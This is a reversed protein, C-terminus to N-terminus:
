WGRLRRQPRGADAVVGRGQCAGAEQSRVRERSGADPCERLAAQGPGAAPEARVLLRAPIPCRGHRPGESAQDRLRRAPQGQPRGPPDPEEPILASTAGAALPGPRSGQEEPGPDGQGAGPGRRADRHHGGPRLGGGTGDVGRRGAVARVAGGAGLRDATTAWRVHRFGGSGTPFEGVEGLSEPWSQITLIGRPRGCDDPEREVCKDLHSSQVTEPSMPSKHHALGHRFMPRVCRTRQIECDHSDRVRPGQLVSAEPANITAIASAAPCRTSSRTM